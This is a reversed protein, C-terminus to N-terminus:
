KVVKFSIGIVFFFSGLFLDCEKGKEKSVYVEELLIFFMLLIFFLMFFNWFNKDKPDFSRLLRLVTEV